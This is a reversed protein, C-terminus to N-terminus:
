SRALSDVRGSAELRDLPGCLGVAEAWAERQAPTLQYSNESYDDCVEILLARAALISRKASAIKRAQQAETRM